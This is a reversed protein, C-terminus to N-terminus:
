KNLITKKLKKLSRRIPNLNMKGSVEDRYFKLEERTLKDTRVLTASAHYRDYSKVLLHGKKIVIKEFETEPLPIALACDGKYPKLEKWLNFTDEITEKTEGPLGIIFSAYTKLGVKHTLRFARKLEEVTLGKKMRDLMKQNGNEVGYFILWFGAKKALRLLKEDVLEKNARFPTKYIIKKNLRNKIILNFVEEAWGRNLNFTDDQFFFEKIGYKQHLWKIEKIILEPKRFRVRHGWVSKNCFTCHFPCGRSAMIYMTPYTGVPNAGTFRNINIFDLNPLPIYDLNKALPRLPNMENKWCIGKIKRLDKGEVIELFSHEGEGIVVVDVNPFDTFIRLKLASPHPGGIVVLINKDIKKVFKSIEKTSKTQFTNTTIGVIDPKFSTIIRKLKLVEVKDALMHVIKIRHGKNKLMTGILILAGSPYMDRKTAPNNNGPNILLIKKTKSM